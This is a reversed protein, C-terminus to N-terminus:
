SKGIRISSDIDLGMLSLLVGARWPRSGHMQQVYPGPCGDSGTWGSIYMNALDQARWDSWKYILIPVPPGRDHM